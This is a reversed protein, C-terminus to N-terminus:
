QQKIQLYLPGIKISAVNKKPCKPLDTNITGLADVDVAGDRKM